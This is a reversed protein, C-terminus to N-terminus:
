AKLKEVIDNVTQGTNQLVVMQINFKELLEKAKPGFDGSIVKTVGLEIMLEAVKTGAGSSEKKYENEIFEITGETQNFVCFFSARGFRMDFDASLEGGISSVVTKM